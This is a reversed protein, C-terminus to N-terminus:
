GGDVLYHQLSARGARVTPAKARGIRLVMMAHTGPCITQWSSNLHDRLEVSAGDDADTQLPLVASAAMPQVALGLNTATLWVRELAAGVDVAYKLPDKRATILFLGPAQWAPLWGARLGILRHVGITTLLRMLPWHRLAKFMPRMPLEIELSGPPLAVDSSENWNLDFRISSFIERHLSQRLFRESEARWILGLATRRAAGSLQTLGIQSQSESAICNSLQHVEDSSLAPGKYMRRNTCRLPIATALTSIPSNPSPTVNIQALAQRSAWHSALDVRVAHGLAAARLRMNELVAGLSIMGLVRRYRATTNAFDDTPWLRIFDEGLEIRFIHENDASPALLGHEAISRLTQRM